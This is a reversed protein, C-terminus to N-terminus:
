RCDRRLHALVQRRGAIKDTRVAADRVLLPGLLRLALLEGGLRGLLLARVLGPHRLKGHKRLLRWRNLYHRKVRDATRQPTGGGEHFALLTPDLRLLLGALRLRMSLDHDLDLWDFEEDFGGIALFADRRVAMACTFISIEGESVTRKRLRRRVRDLRQGLVLGMVDPEVESSATPIGGTSVTTFGVMALKAENAFAARLHDAYPRLPYADSDFIVVIDTDCERVGRNLSRCLGQNGANVLLEVRSDLAEPPPSSSADDVVVIRDVSDSKVVADLCRCTLPWTNYNTIVVGVSLDAPQTRNV